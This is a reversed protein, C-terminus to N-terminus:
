KEGRGFVLLTVKPRKIDLTDKPSPMAAAATLDDFSVPRDRGDGFAVVLVDRDLQAIGRRVVEKGTPDLLDVERIGAKGAPGVKGAQTFKSRSTDATLNFNVGALECTGDKTLSLRSFVESYIPSPPTSPLSLVVHWDGTLRDDPAPSKDQALIANAALLAVVAALCRISM